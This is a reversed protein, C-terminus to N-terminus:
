GGHGSAGLAQRLFQSLPIPKHPPPQKPGPRHPPPPPPNKPPPGPPFPNLYPTGQSLQHRPDPKSPKKCDTLAAIAADRQATIDNDLSTMKWVHFLKTGDDIISFVTSLKGFLGSVWGGETAQEAAELAADRADGHAEGTTASLVAGEASTPPGGMIGLIGNRLKAQADHQIQYERIFKMTGGQGDFPNDSSKMRECQRYANWQRVLDQLQEIARIDHTDEQIMQKLQERLEPDDTRLAAEILYGLKQRLAALHQQPQEADPQAPAPHPSLAPLAFSALLALRRLWRSAAPCGYRKRDSHRTM